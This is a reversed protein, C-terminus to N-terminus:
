WIRANKLCQMKFKTNCIVNIIYLLELKTFLFDCKSHIYKLSRFPTQFYSSYVPEYDYHFHKCQLHIYLYM